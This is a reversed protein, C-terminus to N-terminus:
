GEVNSIKVLSIRFYISAKNLTTWSPDDYSQDVMPEEQGKTPPNGASEVKKTITTPMLTPVTRNEYSVADDPFRMSSSQTTHFLPQIDDAQIKRGALRPFTQVFDLLTGVSEVVEKIGLSSEQATYHYDNYGNQKYHHRVVIKSNDPGYQISAHGTNPLATYEEKTAACSPVTSCSIVLISIM